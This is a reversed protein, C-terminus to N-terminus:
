RRRRPALVILGLLSLAGPSLPVPTLSFEQLTLVGPGFLGDKAYVGWGFIDGAALPISMHGTDPPSGYGGDAMFYGDGNLLFFAIDFSPEDNSFFSWDCSLLSDVPARHTVGISGEVGTDGGTITLSSGDRAFVASGGSRPPMTITWTDPAFSGTFQGHAVGALSAGILIAAITNLLTKISM